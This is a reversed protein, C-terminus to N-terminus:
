FLHHSSKQSYYEGIVYLIFIILVTIPTAWSIEKDNVIIKAIKVYFSGIVIAAFLIMAPIRFMLGKKKSEM